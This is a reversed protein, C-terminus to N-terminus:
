LGEPRCVGAKKGGWKWRLLYTNICLFDYSFILDMGEIASTVLQTTEDTLDTWSFFRQFKTKLFWSSRKFPSSKTSEVQRFVLQADEACFGHRLNQLNMEMAGSIM